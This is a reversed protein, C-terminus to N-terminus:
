CRQWAALISAMVKWLRISGHDELVTAVHIDQPSSLLMLFVQWLTEMLLPHLEQSVSVGKEMVFRPVSTGAEQDHGGRAAEQKAKGSGCLRFVVM